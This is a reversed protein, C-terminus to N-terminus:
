PDGSISVLTFVIVSVFAVVGISYFVRRTIFPALERLHSLFSGIRKL